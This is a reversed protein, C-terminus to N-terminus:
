KRVLWEMGSLSLGVGGGLLHFTPAIASGAGIELCLYGRGVGPGRVPGIHLLHGLPDPHAPLSPPLAPPRFAYLPSNPLPLLSLPLLYTPQSSSANVGTYDANSAGTKSHQLQRPPSYRREVSKQFSMRDGKMLKMVSGRSLTLPPRTPPIPVLCFAFKGASMIKGLAQPDMLRFAM